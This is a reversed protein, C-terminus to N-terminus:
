GNIYGSLVKATVKYFELVREKSKELVTSVQSKTKLMGHFDIQQIARPDADLKNQKSLNVVILQYHDKFYQYDSLCGTKYNDGKGTAIKRIKDYKKIQDNISQDYFNSGDILVNHDTVGARPLFYKTHSNRQVKNPGGNGNALNTNNFALVFM